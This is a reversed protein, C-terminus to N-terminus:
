ECVKSGKRDSQGPKALKKTDTGQIKLPPLKRAKLYECDIKKGKPPNVPVCINENKGTADAYNHDCGDIHLRVAAPRERPSGPPAAGAGSASMLIAVGTGVVAATRLVPFRISM